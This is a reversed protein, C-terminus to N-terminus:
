WNAKMPMALFFYNEQGIINFLGPKLADSAKFLIESEDINGLFDLLYKANFTIDIADGTLEGNIKSLNSGTESPQSKAEITEESASIKVSNGIDRAFISALKIANLLEGKAVRIETTFNKLFFRSM